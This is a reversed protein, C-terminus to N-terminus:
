ARLHVCRRARSRDRGALHGGNRYRAAAIVLLVGRGHSTQARSSLLASADHRHSDTLLHGDDRGAGAVHSGAGLVVFVHRRPPYVPVFMIVRDFPSNKQSMSDTQTPPMKMRASKGTSSMGRMPM